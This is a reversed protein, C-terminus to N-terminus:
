PSPDPRTAVLLAADDTLDKGALLEFVLRDCLSEPGAGAAGAATAVLTALRTDLAEDRREILGDTYTVLSAGVPFPAEGPEYVAGPIGLPPGLADDLLTTAGDRDVLLPPPHGARAYVIREAEPEFVGVFVTAFADPKFLTTYGNLRDLIRAPCPDVISFARLGARLSAMVAAARLGHGAVDGMVLGVGGGAVPIVDYWDGGVAVPQGAPLYRSAFSLGAIPSLGMPLYARQLLEASQHESAHVAARAAARSALAAIEELPAAGSAGGQAPGDFGFTVAGCRERVAVLPTTVVPGLTELAELAQLAQLDPYARRLDDTSPFALVRVERLTDNWPAALDLDSKELRCSPLGPGGLVSVGPAGHEDLLLVHCWRAGAAVTGYATLVAAVDDLSVARVLALALRQLPEDWSSRRGLGTDAQEYTEAVPIQATLLGGGPSQSQASGQDM